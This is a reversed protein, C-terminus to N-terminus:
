QVPFGEGPSAGDRVRREERQFALTRRVGVYLFILSAAVILLTIPRSLFSIISNDFLNLGRRLQQEFGSALVVALSAAAVSYGYRLMFYGIVGMVMCVLVDFLRFQISFVGLAVAALALVIVVQRNISIARLMARAMFWGTILLLVSAGLMGAVAAHLLEPTERILLPGPILGQIQLAALLLVMSPSGPIGLGLTPILEGANSANQASENAAIGEISGKGFEEPTKSWMQSQQYAILAAPTSGAGPIAGVLTGVVSGLLTPRLTPRIQAWSPFKAVFETALANWQFSQRAQRFLESVALLGITVPGVSLGGRLEPIYAFRETFNMPDLGVFAISLGFAAAAIGKFLNKGTLSVIAVMGFLYLAFLEPALFVYALGSLPVVLLVFFPISIVQGILAATFSIGLALGTEGRRHLAFGDLATLVAAPTGPVALLIAPISNGYQLAVSIALLFAVAEVPSMVFTFPLVLGYALTSGIGPMAGAVVGYLVGILVLIWLGLDGLLAAGAILPDALESLWDM